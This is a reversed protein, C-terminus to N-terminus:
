PERTIPHNVTMFSYNGEGLSNNASISLKLQYCITGETTLQYGRTPEELGNEPIIITKHVPENQSSCNRLIIKYNTIPFGPWTFPQDWYIFFQFTDNIVHEVDYTLSPALPTGLILSNSIM